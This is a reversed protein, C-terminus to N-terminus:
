GAPIPLSFTRVTNNASFRLELSRTHKGIAVEETRGDSSIRPNTLSSSQSTVTFEQDDSNWYNSFLVNLDIVESAERYHAWYAHGSRKRFEVRILSTPSVGRYVCIWWHTSTNPLYPVYQRPAPTWIHNDKRELESEVNEAFM